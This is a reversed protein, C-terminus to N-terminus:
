RRHDEVSREGNSQAGLALRLPSLRLLVPGPLARELNSLAESALQLLNGREAADLQMFRRDGSQRDTAVHLCLGFDLGIPRARDQWDTGSWLWTLYAAYQEGNLGRAAAEARRADWTAAHVEDQQAAGVRAFCEAARKMSDRDIRTASLALTCLHQLLWQAGPGRRRADPLYHCDGDALDDALQVAAFQLLVAMCRTRLERRDVLAVAAFSRMLEAFGPDLVALTAAVDARACGEPLRAVVFDLADRETPRVRM